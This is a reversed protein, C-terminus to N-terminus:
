GNKKGMVYGTYGGLVMSAVLFAMPVMAQKWTLTTLAMYIIDM